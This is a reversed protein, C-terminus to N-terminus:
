SDDLCVHPDARRLWGEPVREVGVPRCAKDVFSVVVTRADPDVGIVTGYTGAPIGFARRTLAVLEQDVFTPMLDSDEALRFPGFTLRRTRARETARGAPEGRVSSLTPAV